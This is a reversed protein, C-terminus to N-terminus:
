VIIILIIMHNDQYDYYLPTLFDTDQGKSGSHAIM